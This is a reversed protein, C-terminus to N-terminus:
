MLKSFFAATPAASFATSPKSAPFPSFLMVTSPSAAVLAVGAGAVLSAIFRQSPTTLKRRIKTGSKGAPRRQGPRVTGNGKRSLCQLPKFEQLLAQHLSRSELQRVPRLNEEVSRATRADPGSEPLPVVLFPQTGKM